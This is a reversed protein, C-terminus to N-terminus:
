AVEVPARLEPYLPFAEALELVQKRIRALVQPDKHHNLAEVIWAGTQVMEKERM